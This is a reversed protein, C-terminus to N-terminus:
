HFNLLFVFLSKAKNHEGWKMSVVALKGSIQLLLSSLMSPSGM